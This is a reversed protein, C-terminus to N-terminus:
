LNSKNYAVAILTVGLRFSFYIDWDKDKFLNLILRIKIHTNKM